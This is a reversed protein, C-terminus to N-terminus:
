FKESISYFSSESEENLCVAMTMSEDVLRDDQTFEPFHFKV